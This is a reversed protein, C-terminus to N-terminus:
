TVEILYADYGGYVNSLSRIKATQCSLLGNQLCYLVFDRHLTCLQVLYCLNLPFYHKVLFRAHYNWWFYTVCHLQLLNWNQFIRPQPPLTAGGWGLIKQKGSWNLLSRPPNGPNFRPIRHYNLRNAGNFESFDTWQGNEASRAEPLGATSFCWRRQVFGLTSLQYGSSSRTSFYQIQTNSITPLLFHLNPHRFFSRM